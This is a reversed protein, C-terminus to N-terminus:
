AAREREALWKKASKRHFIWGRGFPTKPPAEGLRIWRQITRPHKHYEAALEEVSMYDDLLGDRSEDM